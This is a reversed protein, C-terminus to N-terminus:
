NKIKYGGWITEDALPKDYSDVLEVLVPSDEGVVGSDKIVKEIAGGVSEALRQKQYEPLTYWADSMVVDWMVSSDQSHPKKKITIVLGESLKVIETFKEHVFKATAKGRKENEEEKRKREKALIDKERKREKALTDKELQEVQTFTEYVKVYTVKNEQIKVVVFGNDGELAKGVTGKGLNLEKFTTMGLSDHIQIFKDSSMGKKINQKIQKTSLLPLEEDEEDKESISMLKNEVFTRVDSQENKLMSVGGLILLTVCLLLLSFDQKAKGNKKVLSVIMMIGFIFCGILGVIGLIFSLFIEGEIYLNCLKVIYIIFPYILLFFFFGSGYILHDCTRDQLM